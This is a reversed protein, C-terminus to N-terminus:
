AEEKTNIESVKLNMQDKIHELIIRKYVETEEKDIEKQLKEIM